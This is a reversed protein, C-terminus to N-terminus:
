QVSLPAIIARAPASRRALPILSVMSAGARGRQGSSATAARAWGLWRAPRLPALAHLVAKGCRADHPSAGPSGREGLDARGGTQVHSEPRAFGLDHAGDIVGMDVRGEKRADLEAGRNRGAPVQRVEAGAVQDEAHNRGLMQPCAQHGKRGNQHGCGRDHETGLADLLACQFQHGFDQCLGQGVRPRCDQRTWTKGGLDRAPQRGSDGKGTGILGQAAGQRGAEGGGAEAGIQASVHDPGLDATRDLIHEGNGTTDDLPASQTPTRM